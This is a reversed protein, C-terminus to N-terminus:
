IIFTITYSVVYLIDYREMFTDYSIISYRIKGYLYRLQRYFITYKSLLITVIIGAMWQIGSTGSASNVQEEAAPMLKRQSIAKEM